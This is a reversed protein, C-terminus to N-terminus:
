QDSLINTIPFSGHMGSFAIGMVACPHSPHVKVLLTSNAIAMKMVVAKYLTRFCVYRNQGRASQHSETLTILSFKQAPRLIGECFSRETRPQRFSRQQSLLRSRLRHQQTGRCSPLLLLPEFHFSVTAPSSKTQFQCGPTYSIRM